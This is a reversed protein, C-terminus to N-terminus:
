RLYALLEQKALIAAQSDAYGDRVRELARRAEEPRNAEDLCRAAELLAWSAFPSDSRRDAYELQIDAASTFDGQEEWCAAVGNTAAYGLVGDGDGFADLYGKFVDRAEDYRSQKFRLNGLQVWAEAASPTGSYESTVRQYLSAAEEVRSETQAIVAEGLNEMALRRQEHRHSSMALVVVAVVVVGAGGLGIYRLNATCWYWATFLFTVFRDQKIERRTIRRYTRTPM